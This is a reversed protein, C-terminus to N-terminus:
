KWNIKKQYLANLKEFQVKDEALTVKLAQEDAWKKVVNLDYNNNLNKIFFELYYINGKIDATPHKILRQCLQLAEDNRSAQLLLIAERKWLFVDPNNSIGLKSVMEKVSKIKELDWRKAEESYISKTLIGGIVEKEKGKLKDTELEKLQDVHDIWFKFFGNEISTVCFKTIIYSKKNGLNQKPFADFLDNSLRTMLTDNRYLHALNSYAYLTRISRDGTKYKNELNAARETTSLADEGIDLLFKIGQQTHAFHVFKKNKDFFFFIPVSEPKLGTSDMFAKDDAKVNMVDLKYSVFNKNYFNYMMSDKFFPELRNCVDCEHNFYEVFVVKDERNAKAFASDLSPQFDVSQAQIKFCFFLLFYLYFSYKM